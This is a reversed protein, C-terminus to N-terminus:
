GVAEGAAVYGPPVEAKLKAATAPSYVFFRTVIGLIIPIAWGSEPSIAGEITAAVDGRLVGEGALTQVVALACAAVIGIVVAPERKFLAM